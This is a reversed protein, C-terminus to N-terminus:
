RRLVARVPSGDSGGLKLPLAILEYLGPAVGSLDLGELIAVGHQHLLHHIPLEQSDLRDTSPLDLGVLRVKKEALLLVTEAALVPVQAPFRSSDPWAGTRFLLRDPIETKISHIHDPTIVDAGCVDIVLAPGIFPTLDLADVTTGSDDFHWPADIHTGAHVSMSVESLNVTAGRSLLCTHRLAFPADGPWEALRSSLLRTIDIIKTM